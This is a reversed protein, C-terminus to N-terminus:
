WNIDAWNSRSHENRKYVFYFVKQKENQILLFMRVQIETIWKLELLFFMSVMSNSQM